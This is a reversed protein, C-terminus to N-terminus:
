KVRKYTTTGVMAPGQLTDSSKDYNLSITMGMPGAIQLTGDKAYTANMQELTAGTIQFQNGNQTINLTDAPNNASVWKGVYQSGAKACGIALVALLITSQLMKRALDRM